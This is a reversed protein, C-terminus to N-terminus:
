SSTNMLLHEDVPAVRECTVEAQSNCSLIRHAILSRTSFASLDTSIALQPSALGARHHALRPQGGLQVALEALGVAAVGPVPPLSGRPAGGHFLMAAISGRALASCPQGVQRPGLLAVASFRALQELVSGEIRRSVLGSASM